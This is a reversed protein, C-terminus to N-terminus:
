RDDAIDRRLENLTGTFDVNNTKCYALLSDLLHYLAVAPEAAGEIGRLNAHHDLIEKGADDKSIAM